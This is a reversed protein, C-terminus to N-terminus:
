CTARCSTGGLGTARVQYFWTESPNLNINSYSTTSSTRGADLRQVTLRDSSRIRRRAPSPRGRSISARTSIADRKAADASESDDDRQRRQESRLETRVSPKSKISTLSARRSIRSSSSPFTQKRRGLQTWGSTGNPSQEILFQTETATDTWHLDILTTSGSTAVLSAPAPQVLAALTTASLTNSAASTGGAGTAKVRYYYTTNATLGIDGLTTADALTNAIFAWGSTGNPSREVTYSTEGAVNTWVLNIQQQSISNGLFADARLLPRRAPTAARPLPAM